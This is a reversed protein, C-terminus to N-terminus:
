RDMMLYPRNYVLLPGRLGGRHGAAEDSLNLTFLSIGVRLTTVIRFSLENRYDM